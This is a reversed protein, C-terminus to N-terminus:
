WQYWTETQSKEKWLQILEEQTGRWRGPHILAKKVLKDGSFCFWLPGAQTKYYIELNNRNDFWSYDPSGLLACIQGSSTGYALREDKLLLRVAQEAQQFSGSRLIELQNQFASNKQVGACGVLLCTFVILVCKKM